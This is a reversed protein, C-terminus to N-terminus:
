QAPTVPIQAPPSPPSTAAAQQLTRATTFVNNSWGNFGAVLNFAYVTGTSSANPTIAAGGPTASIEFANATLGTAIVYYVTQASFTSGTLNSPLTGSTYLNTPYTTTLVIYSGATLGHSPWSIAPNGNTITVPGSVPVGSLLSANYASWAFWLGLSLANADNISYYPSNTVINEANCDVIQISGAPVSTSCAAFAPSAFALLAVLAAALLNKM